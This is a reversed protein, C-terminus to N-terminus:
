PYLPFGEFGKEKLALLSRQIDEGPKTLTIYFTEGNRNKQRIFADVGNDRLHMLHEDANERERFSGLQILIEEYEGDPQESALEPVADPEDPVTQPLGASDATQHMGSPFLYPLIFLSGSALAKYEMSEPFDKELTYSYTELGTRYYDLLLTAKQDGELTGPAEGMGLYWKLIEIRSKMKPYKEYRSLYYELAEENRGQLELVAGYTGEAIMRKVQGSGGDLPFLPLEEQASLAFSAFLLLASLSPRM